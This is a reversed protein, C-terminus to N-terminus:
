NLTSCNKPYQVAHKIMKKLATANVSYPYIIPRVHPPALAKQYVHINGYSPSAYATDVDLYLISQNTVISSDIMIGAATEDWFPFITGYHNYVLNSYSNNVEIIEDLFSQTSMVQNAVNGAITINPFDATLAIKAAEPDIILNIDSNLDELLLSGTAQLLNVDVYGGMIVLEKALSAFDPDMRVALAVNTMAGAAWISVQGPYKKVMEVMFNAANTSTNAKITPFGEYFAAKVVKNPNGSTPDNGLAEYTLNEPAFAGQWELMGHVAEWAQFREPTNILPWTAGPYVPICGLNGVELTALAHLTIQKQWTGGTCSTLGLVEYGADLAMLFPIFGASSWDNDMIVYKKESRTKLPSAVVWSPLACLAFLCLPKLHM